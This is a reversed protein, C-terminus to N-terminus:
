PLQSSDHELRARKLKLEEQKTKEEEARVKGNQWAKICDELGFILFMLIGFAVIIAAETM